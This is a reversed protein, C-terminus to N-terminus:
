QSPAESSDHQLIKSALLTLDLLDIKGDNNLDGPKAVAWEPDASTAGYHAAIMALDGISYREDGNMDGTSPTDTSLEIIHSAGQIESENGKGDAVQLSGILVTVQNASAQNNVKFTLKLYQANPEPYETNTHASIIRVGAEAVEYDLLQLREEDLSAAGVFTLAEQDYTVLMDQAYVHQYLNQIGFVLDVTDGAAAEQPGTLTAATPGVEGRLILEAVILLDLYDVMGDANLDAKAYSAWEPDADTKGLAKVVLALDGISLSGDGNLDGDIAAARAFSRLAAEENGGTSVAVSTVEIQPVVPISLDQAKWRLVLQNGATNGSGSSAALLRLEGEGELQGAVIWDENASGAEVFEVQSPDYTILIDQALVPETTGELTYFTEFSQGAEVAALESLQGYVSPSAEAAWSISPRVSIVSLLLLALVFLGTRKNM